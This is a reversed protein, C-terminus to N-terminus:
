YRREPKPHTLIGLLSGTIEDLLLPAAEFSAQLGLQKTRDASLAGHAVLHRLQAIIFLSLENGRTEEITMGLLWKAFRKRKSPHIGLFECLEGAEAGREEIRDMARQTLVPGPLRHKLQMKSLLDARAKSNKSFLANEIQEYGSYAMVLRWQQGRISDSKGGGGVSPSEWALAHKLLTAGRFLRGIRHRVDEEVLALSPDLSRFRALAEEPILKGLSDIASRHSAAKNAKMHTM